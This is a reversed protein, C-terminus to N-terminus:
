REGPHYKERAAARVEDWDFLEPKLRRESLLPAQDFYHPSDPQGSAGFPVLSAGRVKPGFEYVALYSTGLLGYRKRLTLWWPLRNLPTYYQTFIAGMPGHGGLCPLSPEVDSFTVALLDAVQPQRQIRHIDGWPTQWDGYLSELRNAARQLARFRAPMSKEYLPKLVEGPYGSGYMEEYWATCLTAQTSGHTIQGDWPLLHEVYKRVKVALEPDTQELAAFQKAYNPLEHRAWYLETDFAAQAVDEFTAAHMAALIERSRKARRKDDDREEIMYSPFREPPPNDASSTTFPTSNCNQLYHSSPNLVVPLEALLHLERWETRPDDGPVPESWNFQPDRKPIAGNYVFMTNGQRDAYLVNMYHFQGLGLAARFEDLNKARVMQLTQRLVMGEYLNSIRATQYTQEDVKRVVPGHHTKRFTHVEDALGARGLVRITEQWEEALRYGNGYRYALPRSPDDFTEIWVDAIDPENTTFTWGLHENHGFGPLTGGYVTAGIFDWGEGSRLHAEFLQGYGFWPQHPNALLIPHGSKTRQPGLVWANSGAASWIKDHRRPLHDDSLRTYRFGLELALHRGAALVHWPEFHTIVRPQEGPHTALYFNLGEAFAACLRQLKPELRVFDAQSRPVIQFARNLLDSNLGEPGYVEAYRGLGLLYTDEVQWFYDEAQAYAFGFLTSEDDQGDIHPVGYADRYITVKRALETSNPPRIESGLGQGPWVAILALALAAGLGPPRLFPRHRGELNVNRGTRRNM